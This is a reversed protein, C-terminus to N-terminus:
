KVYTDIDRHILMDLSPGELGILMDPKGEIIIIIVDNTPQRHSCMQWSWNQVTKRLREIAEVRM